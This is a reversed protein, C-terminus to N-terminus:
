KEPEDDTQAAPLPSWLGCVLGALAAVVWVIVWIPASVALSWIGFVTLASALVTLVGRLTMKQGRFVVTVVYAAGFVAVAGVALLATSPAGTWAGAYVVLAACAGLSVGWGANLGVLLRKIM